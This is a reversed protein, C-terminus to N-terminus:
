KSLPSANKVTLAGVPRTVIQGYEIAPDFGINEQIYAWIKAPEARFADKQEQTFYDLIFQRNKELPESLVRPCVIYRYFLEESDAMCGWSLSLAERLVAPDVDRRDKKSLTLLLAEKEKASFMTDELFDLLRKGNSRSEDNM